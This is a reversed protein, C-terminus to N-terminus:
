KKQKEKIKKLQREAKEIAEDLAAGWKKAAAHATIEHDNLHAVIEVTEEVGETDLIVHCTTIKNSYKTLKDLEAAIFDKIEPTTKIHKSRNTFQMEM